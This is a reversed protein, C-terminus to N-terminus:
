GIESLNLDHCNKARGLKTSPMSPDSSAGECPGGRKTSPSQIKFAMATHSCLFIYIYVYIYIYTCIYIYVYLYISIFIGIHLYM